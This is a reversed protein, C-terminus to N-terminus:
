KKKAGSSVEGELGKFYKFFQGDPKLILLNNQNPGFTVKYATLSKLFAYFSLDKSFADAYIRAAGADGQSKIKAAEANATAIIVTAQADANARIAEANAKGTARHETAVREREARMREFVATSVESPLDIRKIRVDIVKIGLRQANANALQGLSDMISARDDSVVEGITRRGFQARLGDNLQQELLLNAQSPDGGTRTYYLALDEIRWKVFYDVIVDKQEATVIRSSKIDLSQLRTDFFRVQMLLPVKFHLGPGETIAKGNSDTVINGLRLLLAREGEDVTYVSTYLLFFMIVLATLIINKNATM